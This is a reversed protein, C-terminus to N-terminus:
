LIRSASARSGLDSRDRCESGAGRTSSRIPSSTASPWTGWRGGNASACRSS